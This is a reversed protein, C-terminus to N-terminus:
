SASRLFYGCCLTGRDLASLVSSVRCCLFKSALKCSPFSKFLSGDLNYVNVTKSSGDSHRTCVSLVRAM